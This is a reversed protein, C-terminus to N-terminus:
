RDVLRLTGSFEVRLGYRQSLRLDRISQIIPRRIYAWKFLRSINKRKLRQHEPKHDRSLLKSFFCFSPSNGRLQNASTGWFVGFGCLFTPCNLGTKRQFVNAASRLLWVDTLEINSQKHNTGVVFIQQQSTSQTRVYRWACAQGPPYPPCIVLSWSDPLGGGGATAASGGVKARYECLM